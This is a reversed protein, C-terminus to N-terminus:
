SLASNFSHASSIPQFFHPEVLELRLCAIILLSCILEPFGSKKNKHPECICIEIVCEKLVCPIEVIGRIGVQNAKKFSM